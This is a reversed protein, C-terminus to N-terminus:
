KKFVPRGLVDGLIEREVASVAKNEAHDIGTKRRNENGVTRCPTNTDGRRSGIGHDTGEVLQRNGDATEDKEGSRNSKAAHRSNENAKDTTNDISPGFYSLGLDVLHGQWYRLRGHTGAGM